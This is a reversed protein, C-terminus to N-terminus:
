ECYLKQIGTPYAKILKNGLDLYSEDYDTVIEQKAKKFEAGIEESPASATKETVRLIKGNNVYVRTESRYEIIKGEEEHIGGSRVFMFYLQDNNYFYDILSAACDGGINTYITQIKNDKTQVVLDGGVPNDPCQFSVTKNVFEASDEKNTVFLTKIEKIKTEVDQAKLHMSVMLFSIAIISKYRM